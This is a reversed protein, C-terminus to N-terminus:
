LQVFAVTVDDLSKSSVHLPLSSRRVKESLPICASSPSLILNLAASSSSLYSLESWCFLVVTLYVAYAVACVTPQTAFKQWECPACFCRRLRVFLNRAFQRFRYLYPPEFVAVNAVRRWFPALGTGSCEQRYSRNNSVFKSFEKVMM